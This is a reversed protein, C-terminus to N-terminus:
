TAEQLEGESRQKIREEVWVLVEAEIWGTARSGLKVPKPFQGSSILKYVQSRSLGVVRRVDPWRLIRYQAATHNTSM